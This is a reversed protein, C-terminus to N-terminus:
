RIRRSISADVQRLPSRHEHEERENKGALVSSALAESWRATIRPKPHVEDSFDENDDDSIRLVSVGDRADLEPLLRAMRRAYDAYLPSGQAHWAPIPLDVLVVASGDGLIENVTQVLTEFPADDLQDVNGMYQRWFKLYGAQQEPQVTRRNREADTLKPAKGSLRTRLSQTVDRAVADLTLYPHVLYAGADLASPPLLATAGHEGRTYFGYRYRELDIDTDGAHRDPTNWRASDSAFVGYWLGLVYTDHRRAAPTQVERVLQVVQRLQSINSGSVSLNHVERDPLAAQLESQKFGVLTNSAGLVLLKDQETNLRSREFFVYKPETLYLSDGARASDLPGRGADHPKLLLTLGLLVGYALVLAAGHRALQLLIPKM